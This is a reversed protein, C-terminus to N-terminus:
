QPPSWKSWIASETDPYRVTPETWGAKLMEERRWRAERGNISNPKRRMSWRVGHGRHQVPVPIYRGLYINLITPTPKIGRRMLDRVLTRFTHEHDTM